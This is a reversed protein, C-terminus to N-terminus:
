NTIHSSKDVPIIFARIPFGTDHKTNYERVLELVREAKALDTFSFLFISDFQEGGTSFWSDLLNSDQNDKIGITATVSFVAIKADELIQAANRQYEKLCTIVLLKM